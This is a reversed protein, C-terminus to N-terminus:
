QFFYSEFHPLYVNRIGSLKKIIVKGLLEQAVTTTRPGRRGFHNWLERPYLAADYDLFTELMFTHLAKRREPSISNPAKEVSSFFVNDIEDNPVLALGM